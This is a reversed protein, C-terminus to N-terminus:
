AKKGQCVEKHEDYIGFKALVEKYLPKPFSKEAHKLCMALILESAIILDDKEIEGAKKLISLMLTEMFMDKLPLNKRAVEKLLTHNFCDTFSKSLAFTEVGKDNYKMDMVGRQCLLKLIRDVISEM